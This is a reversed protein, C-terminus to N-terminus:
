MVSVVINMQGRFSDWNCIYEAQFVWYISSSTFPWDTEYKPFACKNSLLQQTLLLWHVRGTVAKDCSGYSSSPMGCKHPKCIYKEPHSYGWRGPFVAVESINFSCKFKWDLSEASLDIPIVLYVSHMASTMSEPFVSLFHSMPPLNQRIETAWYSWLIHKGLLITWYNRKVCHQLACHVYEGISGPIQFTTVCDSKLFIM